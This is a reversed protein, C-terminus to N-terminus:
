PHFHGRGRRYDGLPRARDKPERDVARLCAIRQAVGDHQREGIRQAAHAAVTVEPDDDDGARAVLGEAGARTQLGGGICELDIM